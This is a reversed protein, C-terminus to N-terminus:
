VNRGTFQLYFFNKLDIIHVPIRPFDVMAPLLLFCAAKRNEWKRNNERTIM